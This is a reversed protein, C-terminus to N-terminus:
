KLNINGQDDPKVEDPGLKPQERLIRERLDPRIQDINLKLSPRMQGKLLEMGLDPNELMTDMFLFANYPNLGRKSVLEQWSIGECQLSPEVGDNFWKAFAIKVDDSANMLRWVTHFVDKESYRYESKLNKRLALFNILIQTSYKNVM